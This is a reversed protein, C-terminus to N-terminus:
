LSGKTSPSGQVRPDIQCAQDLARAFGKFVSEAIHHNDRGYLTEIHLNMMAQSSVGRMFEEILQLSFGGAQRTGIEPIRCELYVRGSFDVVVRSLTEDMPLYAHGYRRIGKKDGIAERLAAGLCIGVDEVTHHFDVEIDGKADVRLDMLSHRAFLDLMHDFFAIGTRIESEGTGDIQLTLDIKTEKTERKISAKRM